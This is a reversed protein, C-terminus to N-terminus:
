YLSELALGQGYWERQREEGHEISGLPFYNMFAQDLEAPNTIQAFQDLNRQWNKKGGVMYRALSFLVHHWPCCLQHRGKRFPSRYRSSLPDAETNTIITTRDKSVYGPNCHRGFENWTEMRRLNDASRTTDGMFTFHEPFPIETDVYRVDHLPGRRPPNSSRERSTGRPETSERNANASTGAEPDNRPREQRSRKAGPDGKSHHKPQTGTPAQPEPERSTSAEAGKSQKRELISRTVEAAVQQPHKPRDGPHNRQLPSSHETRREQDEPRSRRAVMKGWYNVVGGEQNRTADNSRGPRPGRDDAHGRRSLWSQREGPARIPSRRRTPQRPMVGMM